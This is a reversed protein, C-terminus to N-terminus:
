HQQQAALLTHSGNDAEEPTQRHPVKCATDEHPRELNKRTRWPGAASWMYTPHIPLELNYAYYFGLKPNYITLFLIFVRLRLHADIQIQTESPETKNTAAAVSWELGIWCIDNKEWLFPAPSDEVGDLGLGIWGHLRNILKHASQEAMLEAESTSSIFSSSQRVEENM